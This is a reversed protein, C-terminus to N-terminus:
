SKRLNKDLYGLGLGILCIEGFEPLKDWLLGFLGLGIILLGRILKIKKERSM